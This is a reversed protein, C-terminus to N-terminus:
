ILIEILCPRFTVMTTTARFWRYIGWVATSGWVCLSLHKDDRCFRSRSTHCPQVPDHTSSLGPQSWGQHWLCPDQSTRSYFCNTDTYMNHLVDVLSDDIGIFQLSWLYKNPVRQFYEASGSVYDVIRHNWPFLEIQWNESLHPSSYLEWWSFWM